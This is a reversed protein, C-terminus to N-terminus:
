PKKDKNGDDDNSQSTVEKVDFVVLAYSDVIGSQVGRDLEVELSNRVDILSGNELEGYVTDDKILNDDRDIVTTHIGILSRM